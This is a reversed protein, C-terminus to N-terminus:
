VAGTTSSPALTTRPPSPSPAASTAFGCATFYAITYLVVTADMAAGIWFGKAYPHSVNALVLYVMFSKELASFILIPNRGDTRFAAVIMFVGMLSVMIGWHQLIITYERVFSLKEITEVTWQPWFANLGVAATGAGTLVFFPRFTLEFFRNMM